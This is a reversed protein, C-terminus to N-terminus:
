DKSALIKAGEPLLEKLEAKTFYKQVAANDPIMEPFENKYKEKWYEDQESQPLPWVGHVAKFSLDNLTYTGKKYEQYDEHNLPRYVPIDAIGTPWSITLAGDKEFIAFGHGGEILIGYRKDEIM